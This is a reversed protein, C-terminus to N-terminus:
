PRIVHVPHGHAVRQWLREPPAFRLRCLRAPAILGIHAESVHNGFGDVQLGRVHNTSAVRDLAVYALPEFRTKTILVRFRVM